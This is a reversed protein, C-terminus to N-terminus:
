GPQELAAEASACAFKLMLPPIGASFRPHVPDLGLHGCNVNARCDSVNRGAVITPTIIRILVAAIHTAKAPAQESGAAPTSACVAGCPALIACACGSAASTEGRARM